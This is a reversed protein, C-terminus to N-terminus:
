MKQVFYFKYTVKTSDDHNIADSAKLKWDNGGAEAFSIIRPKGFFVCMGLISSAATPFVCLRTALLFAFERLNAFNTGM